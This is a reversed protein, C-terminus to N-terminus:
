VLCGPEVSRSKVTLYCEKELKLFNIPHTHTNLGLNKHVTLFCGILLSNGTVYSLM